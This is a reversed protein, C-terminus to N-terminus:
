VGDDTLSTRAAVLDEFPAFRVGSPISTNNSEVETTTEPIATEAETELAAIEAERVAGDVEAELGATELASETTAEPVDAVTTAEPVDAVVVAETPQNCSIEYADMELGGPSIRLRIPMGPFRSELLTQLSPVGDVDDALDAYCAVLHKIQEETQNECEIVEVDGDEETSTTLVEKIERPLLTHWLHFTQDNFEVTTWVDTMISKVQRINLIQGQYRVTLSPKRYTLQDHFKMIALLIQRRSRYLLPIAVVMCTLGIIKWNLSTQVADMLCGM